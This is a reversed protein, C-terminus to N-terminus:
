HGSVMICQLNTELRQRETKDLDPLIVRKDHPLDKTEIAEKLYYGKPVLRSTYVLITKNDWSKIHGVCGRRLEEKEISPM